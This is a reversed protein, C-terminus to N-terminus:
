PGVYPTAVGCQRDFSATRSCWQGDGFAVVSEDDDLCSRCRGEVCLFADGCVQADNGCAAGFEGRAFKVTKPACKGRECFGSKCCDGDISCDQEFRRGLEAYPLLFVVTLIAM